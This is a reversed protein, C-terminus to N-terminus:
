FKVNWMPTFNHLEDHEQSIEGCVIIEMQIQTTVFLLIENQKLGVNENNVRLNMCM